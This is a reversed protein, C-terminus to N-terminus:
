KADPAKALSRLISSARHLHEFRVHHGDILDYIYLTEGARYVHKALELMEPHSPMEEGRVRALDDSLSQITLAALRTTLKTVSDTSEEAMSNLKHCLLRHDPLGYSSM